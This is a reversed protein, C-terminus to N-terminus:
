QHDHRRGGRDADWRLRAGLARPPITSTRGATEARIPRATTGSAVCVTIGLLGAAQFESDLAERGARGSRSAAGWSISIVSPPHSSEHVATTIADIFGRATNPAFYISQHAGPAVAGAVEIDLMVEGDASDPTSPDNQAGDVSVAAVTPRARRDRFLLYGSGRGTAAASNSFRSRSVPETGAPFEYLAALESGTHSGPPRAGVARATEAYVQFHPTAQPRDDLGVVAVVVDALEPPVLVPGTRGRYTGDPHEYVRLEVGFADSLEDVTGSLVVSRKATSSEVV